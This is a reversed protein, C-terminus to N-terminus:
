TDWAPLDLGSKTSEGSTRLFGARRPSWIGVAAFPVCPSVSWCASIANEHGCGTRAILRGRSCCLFGSVIGLSDCVAM